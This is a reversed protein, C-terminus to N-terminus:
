NKLKFNTNFYKPTQLAREATFLVLQEELHGVHHSVAM